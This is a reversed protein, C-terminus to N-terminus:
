FAVCDHSTYGRMSLQDGTYGYLRAWPRLGTDPPFTFDPVRRPPEGNVGFALSGEGCDVVIQIVKGKARGQLSTPRTGAAKFMVQVESGANWGQAMTYSSMKGTSLDLGWATLCSANCVGVAMNGNQGREVRMSLSYCGEVPLLVGCAWPNGGIALTLTRDENSIRHCRNMEKVWRVRRAAATERQDALKGNLAKSAACFCMLAPLNTALLHRAAISLLEHPLDEDVKFPVLECSVMEVETSKM